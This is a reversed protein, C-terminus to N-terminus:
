KYVIILQSGDVTVAVIEAGPLVANNIATTLQNANAPKPIIIATYM